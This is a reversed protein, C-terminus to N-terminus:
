IFFDDIEKGLVKAIKYLNYITICRHNNGEIAAISSRSIGAKKALDEQRKYGCEHRYRKVKSGIIANLLEETM